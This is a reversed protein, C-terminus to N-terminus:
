GESAFQSRPTRAASEQPVHSLLLKNRSHLLAKIKILVQLTIQITIHQTQALIKASALFCVFYDNGLVNSGLM